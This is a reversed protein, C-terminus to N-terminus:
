PTLKLIHNAIFNGKKSLVKKKENCSLKNGRILSYLYIKNRRLTKLESEPLAINRALINEILSGMEELHEPRLCNIAADKQKKQIKSSALCLLYRHTDSM